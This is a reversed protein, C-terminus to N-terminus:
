EAKSESQRAEKGTNNDDASIQHAGMPQAIIPQARMPQAIIPQARMPQAIIPQARMPQAIIPQAIIWVSGGHVVVM